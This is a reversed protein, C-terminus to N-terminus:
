LNKEDGSACRWRVIRWNPHEEGWQGFHPPAFMVCSNADIDVSLPIRYDKCVSPDNVMCASIILAIM